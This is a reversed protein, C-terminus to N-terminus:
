NMFYVSSSLKFVIFSVAIMKATAAAAKYATLEGTDLIRRTFTGGVM